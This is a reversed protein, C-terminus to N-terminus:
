AVDRKAICVPGIGRAVSKPASLPHGCRRCPAATADAESATLDRPPLTLLDVEPAQESTM